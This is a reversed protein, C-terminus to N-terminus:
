RQHPAPDREPQDFLSPRTSPTAGLAPPAVAATTSRSPGGPGTPDDVHTRLQALDADWSYVVATRGILDHLMRRDRRVLGLLFGIGFLLFGLPFAVTRALAHWAGVPAGDPDVVRVGLAAKGVTRGTLATAGAFYVLQWLLVMAALLPRNDEAAWTVGVVRDLALVGLSLLLTFLTAAVTTDLLFALFRSVAGAHHGQLAVAREGAPLGRIPTLIEPADPRRQLWPDRRAVRGLAGHVILDVSMIATRGLDVVQGFVGTTSRAIVEGLETRKVLANVDVRAMMRDLDVRDVLHNPDIRAVLREPDVRDLLRNVDVRDLLDDPEVRDLLRNVDVRDLLDDPRIRALLAEVDVRGLLANVDVRDLLADPEVGALLANIDVRDLIQAPDIRDILANVDVRALLDDVDIRRAIDNVDIRDVIDDVDVSDVVPRVFPGVVSGVVRGTLGRPPPRHTEDTVSNM